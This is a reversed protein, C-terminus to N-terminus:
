KASRIEPLAAYLLDGPCDTGGVDRHGKVKSCPVRKYLSKLRKVTSKRLPEGEKMLVCVALNGTNHGEQAAPITHLGRGEFIRAHRLKGSPQVIVWNYGIDNWGRTDMHFNQIGRVAACQEELTDFRPGLGKGASWHVFLTSGSTVPNTDRDRAMRAKWRQRSYITLGNWRM